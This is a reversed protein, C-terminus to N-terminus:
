REATDNKRVLIIESLNFILHELFITEITNDCFKNALHDNSYSELSQGILELRSKTDQQHYLNSLCTASFNCECAEHVYTLSNQIFSKTQFKQFVFGVCCVM